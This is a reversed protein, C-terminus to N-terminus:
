GLRGIRGTALVLLLGLLVLLGLTGLTPVAYPDDGPPDVVTPDDEGPEDPIGDGDTDPNIGDDSPDSTPLGSIDGEGDAIAQNFYPGTGDDVFDVVLDITGSAGVALTDTGALLEDDAQGNYGPNATLGGTTAVVQGTTGAPFNNPPTSLNDTVRVDILDENGLNEVVLTFFVSFNGGGNDVLSTVRKALGIVPDPPAGAVSVSATDSDSPDSLVAIATGTSTSPEGTAQATNVLDGGNTTEFFLTVSEGPLMPLDAAAVSLNAGLAADTVTVNDLPVRGNNTVVFCYTVDAGLATAANEGGPCSAGTDHGAYVTKQVDIETSACALGEYDSLANMGDTNLLPAIEAVVGTAEDISYLRNIVTGDQGTSALLGGSGTVTLGEFDNVDTGDSLETIGIDTVAGTATDITVLNDTAGGSTSVVAYLTGSPGFEIDDVDLQGVGSLDVEVCTAGGAFVPQPVAGTLRFLVEGGAVLGAGTANREVGWLDGTVPDWGLSDVDDLDLIQGGPLTCSVTVGVTTFSGTGTDVTGLRNAHYVYVQGEGGHWTMTEVENRVTAGELFMGLATQGTGDPEVAILTDSTDSGAWCTTDTVPGQAISPPASLCVLLLFLPLISARPSLKMFLAKRGTPATPNM